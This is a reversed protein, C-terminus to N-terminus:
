LLASGRHEHVRGARYGGRVRLYSVKDDRVSDVRALVDNGRYRTLMMVMCTMNSFWFEWGLVLEIKM